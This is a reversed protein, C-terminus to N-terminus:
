EELIKYIHHLRDLTNKEECFPQVCFRRNSSGSCGDCLGNKDPLEVTHQVGDIEVIDGIMSQNIPIIDFSKRGPNIEESIFRIKLVKELECILQISLNEKGSLIKSLEDESIKINEALQQKSINRKRMESLTRVAIITSKRLWGGNQKRFSLQKKWDNTKVTKERKYFVRVFLNDSNFYKMPELIRIIEWGKSGMFNMTQIEDEDFMTHDVIRYEFQKTNEM